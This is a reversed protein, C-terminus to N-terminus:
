RHSRAAVDLAVVAYPLQIFAFVSGAHSANDQIRLLREDTNILVNLVDRVEADNTNCSRSFRKRILVSELGQAKHM